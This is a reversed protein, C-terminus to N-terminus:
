RKGYGNKHASIVLRLKVKTGKDNLSNVIFLQRFKKGASFTKLRKHQFIVNELVKEYSEQFM